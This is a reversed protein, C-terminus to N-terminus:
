DLYDDEETKVIGLKIAINKVKNKVEDQVLHFVMMFLSLGFIMYMATIAINVLEMHEESLGMMLPETECKPQGGEVGRCNDKRVPVFDGFGITALTIFCFYVSDRISWGQTKKFLFAGGFLVGFMLVICIWLPVPRTIDVEEWDEYEFEHFFEGGTTRATRYPTVNSGAGRTPTSQKSLDCSSSSSDKRSQANDLPLTLSKNSKTSKRSERTSGSRELPKKPVDQEEGSTTKEVEKEKWEEKEDKKDMGNELESRKKFESSVWSNTKERDELDADYNSVTFSIVEDPTMSGMRRRMLGPSASGALSNTDRQNLDRFKLSHRPGVKM